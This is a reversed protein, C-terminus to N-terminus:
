ILVVDDGYLTYSVNVNVNVFWCCSVSIWFVTDDNLFPSSSPLVFSDFM